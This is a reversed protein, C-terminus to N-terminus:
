IKEDEPTMEAVVAAEMNNAFVVLNETNDFFLHIALKPGVNKLMCRQAGFEGAVKLLARVRDYEVFQEHSKSACDRLATFVMEINRVTGETNYIINTIEVCVTMAYDKVLIKSTKGM